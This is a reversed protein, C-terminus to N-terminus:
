FWCSEFQEFFSPTASFIPFSEGGPNTSTWRAYLTIDKTIPTNFDFLTVYNTDPYWGGFDYASRTPKDPPTVPDGDRVQTTSIDPSGGQGDFTVTWHITPNKTWQATLTVDSTGMTFQGNEQYIPGDPHKWGAFTYGPNNL